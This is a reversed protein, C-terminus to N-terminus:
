AAVPEGAGSMAAVAAAVDMWMPEFTHGDLDEFARGYMFGMDQAPRPEKGGAALAAETIAAVDARSDRSLALLVGSTTHADIIEKATFLRYHAKDLIMFSIADSWVMMSAQPGKCITEDKVCGIAEYFATSAAVDAVPLNVFIMKTM